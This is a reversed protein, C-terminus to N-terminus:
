LKVNGESDKVGMASRVRVTKMRIGSEAMESPNTM